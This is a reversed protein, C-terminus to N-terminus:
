KREVMQGKVPVNVVAEQSVLVGIVDVTSYNPLTRIQDIATFTYGANVGPMFKDEAVEEITASEDFTL